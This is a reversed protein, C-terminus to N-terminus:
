KAVMGACAPDDAPDPAGYTSRILRAAGHGDLLVVFLNGYASDCIDPMRPGGLAAIIAPVTDSHGVVLVVGGRHREVARATAKAHEPGTGGRPVKEIALGLADALPRATDSTRRRQTTIVATVGADALAQALARARAEGVASLPPDQATPDAKEAHRVLLVVTGAAASEQAAGSAPGLALLAACLLGLARHGLARRRILNGPLKGGRPPGNEHRVM